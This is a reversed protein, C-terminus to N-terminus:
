NQSCNTNSPPIAFQHSKYRKWIWIIDERILQNEWFLMAFVHNFFHILFLKVFNIIQLVIIITKRKGGDDDDERDSVYISVNQCIKMVILSQAHSITFPSKLMMIKKEDKAKQYYINLTVWNNTVNQNTLTRWNNDFGVAPKLNYM